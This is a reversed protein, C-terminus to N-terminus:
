FLAALTHQERMDQPWGEEAERGTKRRRLRQIETEEHEHTTKRALIWERNEVLQRAKIGFTGELHVQHKDKQRYM